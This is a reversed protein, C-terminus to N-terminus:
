KYESMNTSAKLPILQSRSKSKFPMALVTGNQVLIGTSSKINSGTIADIGVPKKRMGPVSMESLVEFFSFKLHGVSAETTRLTAHMRRKAASELRLVSHISRAKDSPRRQM